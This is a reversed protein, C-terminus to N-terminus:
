VPSRRFSCSTWSSRSRIWPAATCSRLGLAVSPTVLETRRWPLATLTGCSVSFGVSPVRLDCVHVRTCVCVTKRFVQQRGAREGGSTWGWVQMRVASGKIVLM